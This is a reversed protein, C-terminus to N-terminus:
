KEGNKKKVKELAKFIIDDYTDGFEGIEKGVEELLLRTKKSIRVTTGNNSM